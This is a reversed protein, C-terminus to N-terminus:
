GICGRSKSASGTRTARRSRKGAISVPVGVATANDAEDGHDGLLFGQIGPYFREFAGVHSTGTECVGDDPSLTGVLYGDVFLGAGASGREVAGQEWAM